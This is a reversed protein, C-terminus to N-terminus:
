ASAASFGRVHLIEDKAIPRIESDKLTLVAVTKGEATLFEAEVAGKDDYKHVVTGIDGEKLSHEKIDKALVILDLESYM